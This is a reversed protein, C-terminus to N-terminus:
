RMVIDGTRSDMLVTANAALTINVENGNKLMIKRSGGTKSHITLINNGQYFIDESDGYRHVGAERFIYQWLRVNDPPLSFFWATSEKLKKKVFAAQTTGTLTGLRTAHTDNVIFLPNVATNWISYSYNAVISSDITVLVTETPQLMETQIDTVAKIFDNDLVKGDCYGPAYMWVLHRDQRAVHEVIFKRQQPTLKFTNIFIVAKYRSLNVKDLDAVHIVDHVVGSRFIAVPLWNNAWHGLSSQKRDSGTYYFTETDHILLVDADNQYPTHITKDLINKLTKIDQRLTPEDWWGWTGHDTLRPGGNFGSPGFDYFWLGHGKSSTAMVNRRTNAISRKLSEHFSTDKLPLLPPQQDMEDLWLKGHLGISNILSRSRYPDGTERASPYYTGPGCLYDIYPSNLVAQLQLHGGAAERGFVAYFYGYFAGTIVPRPWHEKIIKCFHLIDNAVVQHQAEYYDILSREKQPDRFIGAHTQKRQALTPLTATLLTVDKRAWAQRLGKDTKYKEKLWLRFYELMPGSVDPENEIFGWYHWEGYVGGAVQFGALANAEPLKKLENLFEVLKQSAEKKWKMSALSCRQPNEEDDEIIRQIGWSIDPKAETDAYVTNEEPYKRQWWKPPNVHFRIFIAAEPCVNLVGRLQRQVTDLLISGDEKWVHDFFLDVQILKINLECFSKLNYRPVEEWSWRGGPV